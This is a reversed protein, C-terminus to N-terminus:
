TMKRFSVWTAMSRKVQIFFCPQFVQRSFTTAINMAIQGAKGMGSTVLKGKKQHVQEVILNVAQEFADTVPINLVAQAENKLLEIISNKM